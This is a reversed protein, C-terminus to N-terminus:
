DSTEDTLFSLLTQAEIVMDRTLVYDDGTPWDGGSSGFMVTPIGRRSTGGADFTGRSYVLDAARGSSAAFARALRGVSPHDPAVLSPWMHVGNAVTIRYPSMDGITRAIEERAASLTDGPLL